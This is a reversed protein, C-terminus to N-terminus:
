LAARFAELEVRAPASAQAGLRTVSLAAAANAFRCAARLDSGESLAVALAANFEDGAATTDVAKVSPAPILESGTDDLLLCGQDGLKVVVTRAKRERLKHAIALAQEPDLRSPELDALIAAETENPTLIDVLEFLEQPLPCAPAPDLIVRAGASRAARAAELVTALPNELQLLVWAAGQLGDQSAEVDEPSFRGNAGPVIMISNHGDDAVFILAIGSACDPIAVLGSVDCGTRELNLKMQRGFDDSGIRGLMAVYGGLRAAAYAQNAGKGGPESFFTHGVITEGVVPIRPACGVLDMNLSGVVVIREAVSEEEYAADEINPTGANFASGRL